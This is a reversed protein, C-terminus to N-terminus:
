YIYTSLFLPFLIQASSYRLLTSSHGSTTLPMVWNVSSCAPTGWFYLIFPPITCFTFCHDPTLDELVQLTMASGVKPEEAKGKIHQTDKEKGELMENWETRAQKNSQM